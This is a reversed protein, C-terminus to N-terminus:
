HMIKYIIGANAFFIIIVGYAILTLSLLKWHKVTGCKAVVDNVDVSDDSIIKKVFSGDNQDDELKKFLLFSFLGPLFFSILTSGTAGIFSLVLGLNTLFISILFGVLIVCFTIINFQLSPIELHSSNSQQELNLEEENLLTLSENSSAISKGDQQKFEDKNQCFKYINYLSLRCPYMQLPYALTVLVVICLRGLVNFVTTMNYMKIINSEILDGFTLYGLTGVTVYVALALSMARTVVKAFSKFNAERLENFISFTNHQCTFAFVSIPFSTLFNTDSYTKKPKTWYIQGKSNSTSFFYNGIIMVCLYVVSILAIMSFRKLSSIKKIFCLPLIIGFLSISIFFVRSINLDPAFFLLTQPMLDGIVILYSISVGFCKIAIAVDFLVVVNKNKEFLVDGISKFSLKKNKRLFYLWNALQCQLLLGITSMTYSFVLLSLALLIGNNKYFFPISILGTGLSTHLLAKVATNVSSM